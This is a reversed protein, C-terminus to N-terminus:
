VEISYKITIYSTENFNLARDSEAREVYSCKIKEDIDYITILRKIAIIPVTISLIKIKDERAMTRLGDFFDYSDGELFAEGEYKIRLGFYIPKERTLNFTPEIRVRSSIVGKHKLAKEVDQESIGDPYPQEFDFDMQAFAHFKYRGRIIKKGDKQEFQEALFADKIQQKLGEYVNDLHKKLLSKKHRNVLTKLVSLEIQEEDTTAKLEKLEDFFAM